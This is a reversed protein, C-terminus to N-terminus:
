WAMAGLIVEGPWSPKRLARIARVMGNEREVVVVLRAMGTCSKSAVVSCGDLGRARRVRLRADRKSRMGNSMM